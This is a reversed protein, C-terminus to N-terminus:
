KTMFLQYCFIGLAGGIMPGVIPIWAYYWESSGKGPIPLIAHAIRPGLDRAPNIAFGTPGGLSLGIGVILMGILYPQLSAEVKQEGGVIAMIGILLMATAIIETLLNCMPKYIAPKTSFIMLKLSADVTQSWHPLYVLWVLVAGTFAGTFQGLAYIPFDAWPTNGLMIM